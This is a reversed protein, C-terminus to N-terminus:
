ARLAFDPLRIEQEAQPQGVFSAADAAVSMALTYGQAQISARCQAKASAEDTAGVPRAYFANAPVNKRELLAEIRGLGHAYSRGTVYFVSYGLRHAAKAFQVTRPVLADIGAFHTQVTVDDIGIIVALREGPRRHAIRQQLWEEAGLGAGATDYAHDVAHLWAAQNTPARSMPEAVVRIGASDPSGLSDVLGVGGHGALACAGLLVSGVCIGVATRLRRSPRIAPM